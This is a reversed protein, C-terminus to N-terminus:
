TNVIGTYRVITGPEECYLATDAYLRYEVAQTNELHFLPGENVSMGPVGFGLDFSGPRSMVKPNYFFADSERVLPHSVVKIIGNQSYYEIMKGGNKNKETSYSTDLHRLAMLENNLNAWTRPNCLLVGDSDLGSNVASALGNQIQALTLAGTVPFSVPKWLPNATTSIGFLSSTTAFRALGAAEILNTETTAAGIRAGVFYLQATANGNLAAADAAANTFAITRTSFVSNALDIVVAATANLKTAAANNLWIDVPLGAASKWFSESWNALAVVFTGATGAATVTAIPLPERGYLHQCEKLFSASRTMNKVSVMAARAFSNKDGSSRSIAGYTINGRLTVTSGKITARAYSGQRAANLTGDGDASLTYGWERSLAVVREISAGTKDEDFDITKLMYFADPVIDKVGGKFVQKFVANMTTFDNM